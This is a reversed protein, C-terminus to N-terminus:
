EGERKDAPEMVMTINSKTAGAVDLKATVRIRGAAREFAAEVTIVDGPSVVGAFKAKSIKEIWLPEAVLASMACRVMEIQHVAPLIPNGPFHGAFLPLGPPFLFEARLSGQPDGTVSIMAKRVDGQM